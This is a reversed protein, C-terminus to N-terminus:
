FTHGDTMRIVDFRGDEADPIAIARRPNWFAFCDYFTDPIPSQFELTWTAGGDVTKYIRANPGGNNTLVWAIDRSIAHIDRFALTVGPIARSEWTDGGDLTRLITGGAGSIWVIQENIPAISQLRQTTGSVQPTLVPDGAVVGQEMSSLDTEVCSVLLSTAFLFSTRM